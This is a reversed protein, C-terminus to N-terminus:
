RRWVAVRQADHDWYLHVADCEGDELALGAAGPLMRCGPLPADDLACAQPERVLRVPLRCVGLAASGSVPFELYQVRMEVGIPTTGVAVIVREGAVGLVAADARGDGDLDAAVGSDPDWRVGHHEHRLRDLLADPGPVDSALAAGVLALVGAGAIATHRRM